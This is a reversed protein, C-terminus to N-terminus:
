EPKCFTWCYMLSWLNGADLTWEIDNDEGVLLQVSGGKTWLACFFVNNAEMTEPRNDVEVSLTCEGDDHRYDNVEAKVNFDDSVNGLVARFAAVTESVAQQEREKSLNPIAM